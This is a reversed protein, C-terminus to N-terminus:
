IGYAKRLQEIEAITANANLMTNNVSTKAVTARGAMVGGVTGALQDLAGTQKLRYLTQDLYISMAYARMDSYARIGSDCYSMAEKGAPTNFVFDEVINMTKNPDFTKIATLTAPVAKSLASPIAVSLAAAAGVGAVTKATKLIKQVSAHENSTIEDISMNKIYENVSQRNKEANSLRNKYYEQKETNGENKEIKKEYKSKYKDYYRNNKETAKKIYKEKHDIGKENLSGDLNKFKNAKKEAASHDNYDLPYPPGNRKGWRQGGIGHHALELNHEFEEKNM